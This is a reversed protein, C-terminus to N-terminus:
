RIDKLTNVLDQSIHEPFDSIVTDLIHDKLINDETKGRKISHLQPWTTLITEELEHGNKYLYERPAKYESGQVTIYSLDDNKTMNMTQCVFDILKQWETSHINKTTVYSNSPLGIMQPSVVSERILLLGVFIPDFIYSEISYRNGAGVVLIRGRSENVGDHDILGYVLDNGLSVLGTVINIVDSCNTGLKGHPPLFQPSTVIHDHSKVLDYIKDLYGVDYKSEVFVQRRLESSVRLEPLGITLSRIAMIASSQIPRHTSKDMEFIPVGQACAVTTPSHTTIIVSVGAGKVIYESLTDILLRSFEPHLAADPEDLLLVDLKAGNETSNYVALALSMLVKEGTSLDNVSVELDTNPEFIVLKFTNEKSQGLPNNVRYPLNANELIQNILTWPPPGYTKIFEDDSLVELSTGYHLNKFHAYQNDEVRAHYSKFVTAFQSSFIEESHMSKYDIYKKVDEETLTKFDRKSKQIISSFARKLNPDGTQNLFWNNDINNAAAPNVNIQHAANTKINQMQAWTNKVHVVLTNYDCAENIVPNL